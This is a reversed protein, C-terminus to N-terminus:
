ESAEKLAARIAEGPMDEGEFEPVNEDAVDACAEAVLRALEGFRPDNEQEVALIAALRRRAESM